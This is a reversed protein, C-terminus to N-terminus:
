LFWDGDGVQECEALLHATLTCCCPKQVDILAGDPAPYGTVPFARPAGSFQQSAECSFHLGLDL